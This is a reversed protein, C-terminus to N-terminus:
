LVTHVCYGAAASFQLLLIIGVVRDLIATARVFWCRLGSIFLARASLSALVTGRM